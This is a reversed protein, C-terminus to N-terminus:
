FLARMEGLKKLKAFERKKVYIIELNELIANMTYKDKLKQSIEWADLLLKEAEVYRDQHIRIVGIQGLSEAIGKQDNKSKKIELSKLTLKEAKDYEERLFFVTGLDHLTWAIRAQENLMNLTELTEEFLKQAEDLEGSDRRCLALEHKSGAINLLLGLKNNIELSEELLSKALERNGQIRAIQGLQHLCGAIGVLNGNKRHLSLSEKYSKEANGFDGRRQYVTGIELLIRATGDTVGTKQYIMLSKRFLEEAGVYNGRLKEVIGILYHCQAIKIDEGIEELIPLSEECLRAVEPYDGTLSKASALSLLIHASLKKDSSKDLAQRLLEVSKNPESVALMIDGALYLRQASNIGHIWTSIDRRWHQDTNETETYKTGIFQKWLYDIIVDTNCTIQNGSFREFPKPLKEIKFDTIHHNVVMVRIKSSLSEIFPNIDFVDSCSYGLVLVDKNSTRFFYDLIRSRSRILESKAILGLITRISATEQIGGHIKCIVPVKNSNLNVANFQQENYIIKLDQKDNLSHISRELMVDFNTTLINTLYGKLILRAVLEHNKNPAGFGFIRVFCDFFDSDSVISAIFSEFPIKNM